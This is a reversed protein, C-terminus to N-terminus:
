GLNRSARFVVAQFQIQGADDQGGMFGLQVFLIRDDLVDFPFGFILSGGVIHLGRQHVALRRGVSGATVHCCPDDTEIPQSGFVAEEIRSSGCVLRQQLIRIPISVQFFQAVQLRAMHTSFTTGTGPGRM